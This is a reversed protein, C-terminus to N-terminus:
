TRRFSRRVAPLVLAVVAVALLTASIPRAVFIAFSGHSIQLSQRFANEALPGLVIASVFAVPSYGFRRMLLGVVTFVLM